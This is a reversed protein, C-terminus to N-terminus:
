AQEETRSYRETDDQVLPRALAEAERAVQWAPRDLRGAVAAVDDYEAKWRPGDPGRWVKVRVRHGGALEVEVEHRPLTVRTATTRRIGATTSHRLLAGIVADALDAPALAEVRLSLRGKKGQVAWAFCEV